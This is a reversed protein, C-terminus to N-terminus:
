PQQVYFEKLQAFDRVLYTGVATFSDVIKGSPISINSASRRCNEVIFVPQTVRANQDKTADQFAVEISFVSNFYAAMEDPGKPYFESNQLSQRANQAITGSVNVTVNQQEFALAHILGLAFIPTQTNVENISLNEIGVIPLGGFVIVSQSGVLPVFDGAENNGGIPSAYVDQYTQPPTYYKTDM